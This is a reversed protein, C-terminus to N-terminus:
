GREDVRYRFGRGIPDMLVGPLVTLLRVGLAELPPFAILGRNKALGKAIFRAAREASWEGM